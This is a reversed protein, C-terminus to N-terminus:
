SKTGYQKDWRKWCEAKTRFHFCESFSGYGCEKWEPKKEYDAMQYWWVPCTHKRDESGPPFPLGAKWKKLPMGGFDSLAHGNGTGIVIGPNVQFVRKVRPPNARHKFPEYEHVFHHCGTGGCTHCVVAAGDREAMGVYLGTGHCSECVEDVEFTDTM